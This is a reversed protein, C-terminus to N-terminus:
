CLATMPESKQAEQLFMYTKERAEMERITACRAASFLRDADAAIILMLWGPPPLPTADADYPTAAFAAVMKKKSM